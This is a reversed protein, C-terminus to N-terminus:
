ALPMWCRNRSGEGHLLARGPLEHVATAGNGGPAPAPHTREKAASESAKERASQKGIRQGIGVQKAAREQDRNRRWNRVRCHPSEPVTFTLNQGQPPTVSRYRPFILLASGEADPTPTVTWGQFPAASCGATASPSSASVSIVFLGTLWRERIRSNSSMNVYRFFCFGNEGFLPSLIGEAHCKSRERRIASTLAAWVDLPHWRDNLRHNNPEGHSKVPERM